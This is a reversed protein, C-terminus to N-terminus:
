SLGLLDVISDKGRLGNLPYGHLMRLRARLTDFPLGFSRGSGRGSSTSPSSSPDGNFDQSLKHFLNITIPYLARGSMYMEDGPLIGKHNAMALTNSLKIGFTLGQEAAVNQLTRILAV